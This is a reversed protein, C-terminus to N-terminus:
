GGAQNTVKLLATKFEGMAQFLVVMASLSDKLEHDNARFGPAICGALDEATSAAHILIGAWEGKDNFTHHDTVFLSNFGADKKGLDLAAKYYDVNGIKSASHRQICYTGARLRVYGDSRELVDFELTAQDSLVKLTGWEGHIQVKRYSKKDKDAVFRIIPATQEGSRTLEFIPMVAM